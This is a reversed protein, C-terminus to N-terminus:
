PPDLRIISNRIDYVIRKGPPATPLRPLERWKTVLEELSEPSEGRKFRARTLEQNFAALVEPTAPEGGRLKLTPPPPEVGARFAIAQAVRAKEQAEAPSEPNVPNAASSPSVPSAQSQVPEPVQTQKSGCGTFVWGCAALCLISGLIQISRSFRGTQFFRSFSEVQRSRPANRERCFHKATPRLGRFM